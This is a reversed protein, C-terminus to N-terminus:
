QIRFSFLYTPHDVSVFPSGSLASLGGSTPDIRFGYTKSDHNSAVYAFTGTPDVAISAPFLATSSPSGPVQTLVGSQPDIEFGVISGNLDAVYIFNGVPDAAIALLANGTPFPFPSGPVNSLEGTSNDIALAAIGGMSLPAYLFKGKGDIVLSIAHDTLSITFPSGIVASLSGDSQNIQYAFIQGGGTVFLYKGAPDIVPTGLAGDSVAAVFTLDGTDTNVSYREVRGVSSSNTTYLFKGSPHLVLSHLTGQLGSSFNGFPANGMHFGPGYVRYGVIKTLSAFVAYLFQTSPAVAIGPNNSDTNGGAGVQAPPSLAGTSADITSLNLSSVSNGQFLYLGASPNDICNVGVGAIDSHVTGSGNTVRCIQAPNSPQTLITINYTGGGGIRTPFMFPGNNSVALNNGGKNQLVLGTGSLGTVIGGLSYSAQPPSQSSGGSCSLFSLLLLTVTSFLITPAVQQKM